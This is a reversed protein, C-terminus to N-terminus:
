GLQREIPHKTYFANKTVFLEELYKYSNFWITPMGMLFFGVASPPNKPDGMAKIIKLFSVETPYM